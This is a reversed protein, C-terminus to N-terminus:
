CGLWSYMNSQYSKDLVCSTVGWSFKHVIKNIDSFKKSFSIQVLFHLLHKVLSFIQEDYWFLFRFPGKGWNEECFSSLGFNLEVFQFLSFISYLADESSSLDEKGLAWDCFPQLCVGMTLSCDIDTIWSERKQKQLFFSWNGEIAVSSSISYKRQLVPNRYNGMELSRWRQACELTVACHM